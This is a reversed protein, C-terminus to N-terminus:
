LVQELYSLGRESVTRRGAKDATALGAIDLALLERYATSASIKLEKALHTPGIPGLEVVLLLVQLQRPTLPASLTTGTPEPGAPASPVSLSVVTGGLLNDELSLDGGLQQVWSRALSLGAGVGRIYRKAEPGATTFGTRLAKEKDSIGPGRDAIRVTNGSDAITVVVDAFGAHVLNAVIERVAEVPVRGGQQMVTTAIRETLQQIADTPQLAELVFLKPPLADVEYVALRPM